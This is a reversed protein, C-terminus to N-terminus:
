YCYKNYIKKIIKNDDINFINRKNEVHIFNGMAYRKDYHSARFIQYVKKKCRLFYKAKLSKYGGNQLNKFNTIGKFSLIKEKNSKGKLLSNPLLLFSSFDGKFNEIKQLKFGGDFELANKNISFSKGDIKATNKDLRFEGFSHRNKQGLFKEKKEFFNKGDRAYLLLWTDVGECKDCPLVGHYYGEWPLNFELYSKDEDFIDNKSKKSM